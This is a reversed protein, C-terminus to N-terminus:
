YYNISSLILLGIEDQRLRRFKKKFEKVSCIHFLPGHKVYHGEKFTGTFYGVDEHNLIRRQHGIAVRHVLNYEGKKPNRNAFYMENTFYMESRMVYKGM